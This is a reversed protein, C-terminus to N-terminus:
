QLFLQIPRVNFTSYHFTYLLVGLSACGQAFAVCLGLLFAALSFPARGPNWSTFELEKGRLLEQCSCLSSHCCATTRPCQSHGSAGDTTHGSSFPNSMECHCQLRAGTTPCRPFITRGVLHFPLLWSPQFRPQLPWRLGLEDRRETQPLGLLRTMEPSAALTCHAPSARESCSQCSGAALVCPLTLVQAACVPAPFGFALTRPPKSPATVLLLPSCLYCM